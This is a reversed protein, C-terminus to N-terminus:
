SGTLRRWISSTSLSPHEESLRDLDATTDVDFQEHLVATACGVAELRQRQAAGTTPVSMPVGDFAGRM